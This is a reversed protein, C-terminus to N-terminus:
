VAHNRAHDHTLQHGDAGVDDHGDREVEHDAHRAVEREAMRAEHAHAGVAADDGGHAQGLGNGAVRNAEHDREHHASGAGRERTEEDANRDQAQRTVVEGDHRKRKALDDFLDHGTQDHTHVLVAQMDQEVEGTLEGDIIKAEGLRARRDDLARLAGRAGLHDRRKEGPEHEDHDCQHDHQVEHAAAGTTRDQGHAVVADGSDTPMEVVL